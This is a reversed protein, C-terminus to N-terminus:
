APKGFRNFLKSIGGSLNNGSVVVKVEIIRRIVFDALKHSCKLEHCLSKFALKLIYIAKNIQIGHSPCFVLPGKDVFSVFYSVFDFLRFVRSFLQFEANYNEIDVVEFIRVVLITM